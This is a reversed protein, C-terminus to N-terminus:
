HKRENSRRDIHKKLLKKFDYYSEQMAGIFQLIFEKYSAKLRECSCSYSKSLREEVDRYDINNNTQEDM